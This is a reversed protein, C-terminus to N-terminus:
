KVSEMGPALAGCVQLWSLEEKGWFLPHSNQDPLLGVYPGWFSAEGAAREVLLHLVLAQWETLKADRVLDGCRESLEATQFTMLLKTPVRVLVQGRSVPEQAVMGFGSRLFCPSATSLGSCSLEKPLLAQVWRVTADSTRCGDCTHQLDGFKKLTLACGFIFSFEIDRQRHVATSFKAMCCFRPLDM